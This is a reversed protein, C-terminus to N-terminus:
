LGLLQQRVLAQIDQSKAPVSASEHGQQASRKGAVASVSWGQLLRQAFAQADGSSASADLQGTETRPVIHAPINGSLVDRVQAQIDPQQNAAAAAGIHILLAASGVALFRGLSKLNRKSM